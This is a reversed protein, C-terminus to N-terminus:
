RMWPTSAVVIANVTSPRVTAALAAAFCTTPGRFSDGPRCVSAAFGVDPPADTM